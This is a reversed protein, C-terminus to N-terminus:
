DERLSKSTPVRNYLTLHQLSISMSALNASFESSTNEPIDLQITGTVLSKDVTGNYPVSVKGNIWGNVNEVVVNPQSPVKSTYNVCYSRGNSYIPQITKILIEETLGNIEVTQNKLQSYADQYTNLCLFCIFIPFLTARALIFTNVVTRMM